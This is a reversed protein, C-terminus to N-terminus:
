IHFTNHISRMEKPLELEYAVKGVWILIKFPGIFRPSLKGKNRFRFVGKWPSVKLMVLDGVEFEIPNRRNDAYSKWRDQEAKLRERIMDIKESTALIIDTSALKRKGVEDWCVLTRYRRGYLMKYPPMGISANYSNNYSFEVLCLHDDWNGGFDLVCARLMDQLTQITKEIEWRNSPSFNYEYEIEHWTRRSFKEMIIILVAM